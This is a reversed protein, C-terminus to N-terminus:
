YMLKQFIALSVWPVKIILQYSDTPSFFPKNMQKNKFCICLMIKLINPPPPFAPPLKTCVTQCYVRGKLMEVKSWSHLNMCYLRPVKEQKNYTYQLQMEASPQTLNIMQQWTQWLSEGGTLICAETRKQWNSMALVSGQRCGFKLCALYICKSYYRCDKKKEFHLQINLKTHIQKLDM